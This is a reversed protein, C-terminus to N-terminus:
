WRRSGSGSPRTPPCSWLTTVVIAADSREARDSRQLRAAVPHDLGHVPRGPDGDPRWVVITRNIIEDIDYLHYRTIAIGIAIPLLAICLFGAAWAVDSIPSVQFIAISFCAAM